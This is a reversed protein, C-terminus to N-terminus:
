GCGKTDEWANLGEAATEGESVGRTQLKKRGTRPVDEFQVQLAKYVARDLKGNADVVAGALTM